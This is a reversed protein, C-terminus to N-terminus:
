HGSTPPSRRRRDALEDVEAFLDDERAPSEAPLRVRHSPHSWREPWRRELVWAAARWDEQSARVIAAVLTPETEPRELWDAM